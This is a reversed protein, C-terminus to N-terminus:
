SDYSWPDKIWVIEDNQIKILGDKLATKISKRLLKAMKEDEYHLLLKAADALYVEGIGVDHRGSYYIDLPISLEEFPISSENTKLALNESTESTTAIATPALGLLSLIKLFSKRNM